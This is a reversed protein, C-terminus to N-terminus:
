VEKIAIGKQFRLLKRKIVYDKTRKGKADIVVQEGDPYTIVFDAIYTVAKEVCVPKMVPGKKGPREKQVYQAPILEYPVQRAFNHIEGVERLHKLNLYIDSEKKSQFTIGDVVTPKNRYKSGPTTWEM